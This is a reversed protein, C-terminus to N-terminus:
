IEESPLVVLSTDADRSASMKLTTRTTILYLCLGWLVTVMYFKTSIIIGWLYSDPFQFRYPFQLSLVLCAIFLPLIIGMRTEKLRYTDLLMILAPLWVYALHHDWSLPAALFIVMLIASIELNISEITHKRNQARIIVWFTIVIILLSIGISLYKAVQPADIISKSIPNVILLRSIFGNVSQNHPIAITNLQPLSNGYGSNILVFDRWDTWLSKPLIVWTLFAQVILFGITWFVAKFRKKILLYFIFLAPYTKLWIALSLFLAIIWDPKNKRLFIWFLCIFLLTILNVQGHTFVETIPKFSLTFCLAALMILGPKRIELIYFAALLFTIFLLIHNIILFFYSALHYSLFSFPQFFFLAPPPYLFPYIKQNLATAFVRLTEINYPSQGLKFVSIASYYFTPFDIFKYQYRILDWGFNIFYTLQLLIIIFLVFKSKIPMRIM